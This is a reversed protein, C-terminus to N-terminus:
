IDEDQLAFFKEVEELNVDVSVTKAGEKTTFVWGNKTLKECFTKKNNPKVQMELIM